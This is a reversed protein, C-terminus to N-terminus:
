SIRDVDDDSECKSAKSIWGIKTVTRAETAKSGAAMEKCGAPESLKVTRTSTAGDCSTVRVGCIGDPSSPNITVGDEATSGAPLLPGTTNVM